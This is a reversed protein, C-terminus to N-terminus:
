KKTIEWLFGKGPRSEQRSKSPFGPFTHSTYQQSREARRPIFHHLPHQPNSEATKFLRVSLQHRRDSYVGFINCNTCDEGHVIRHCRKITQNILHDLRAPLDVFVQCAYDLLSRILSFYVLEIQHVATINKSMWLAYMRKNARVHLLMM